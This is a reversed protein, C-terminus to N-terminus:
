DLKSSTGHGFKTMEPDYEDIYFQIYDKTAEKDIFWYHRCLKRYLLLADDDDLYDFLRDLANEIRNADKIKHNLIYEVEPKVTCNLYENQLKALKDFLKLEEDTFIIKDEKENYEM